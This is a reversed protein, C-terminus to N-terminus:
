PATKEEYSGGLTDKVYLERVFVMIVAILPVALAIGLTGLLVGFVAQSGLTLAPPLASTYRQAIPQSVNSEVAQVLVYVGLGWLAMSVSESLGVLVIPIGAIFPGLTPIFALLGAQLALLFANPMSVIVLGIWTVVFVIVMSIGTGCVWLILEEAAASLTEDLRKRKSPPFLSVIGRRYLEPQAVLFIAIFVIIFVNGLAGLVSFMAQSASSFIGSPNPLLTDLGVEEGSDSGGGNGGDPGIGMEAVAKALGQLQERLQHWLENFQGVLTVGGYFLGGGLALFLVAIVIGFAWGRRLGACQLPRALAAFIAALLLGGFILLLAGAAAWALALTATMALVVSTIITARKTLEVEVRDKVM